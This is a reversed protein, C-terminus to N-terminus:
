TSPKSVGEITEFSCNSDIVIPPLLSYLKQNYSFHLYTKSPYSYETQILSLTEQKLRVRSLKTKQIIPKNFLVVKTFLLFLNYLTITIAKFIETLTIDMM